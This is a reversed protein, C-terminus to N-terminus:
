SLQFAFDPFAVDGMFAIVQPPLLICALLPQLVGRVQDVWTSAVTVTGLSFFCLHFGEALTDADESNWGELRDFCQPILLYM